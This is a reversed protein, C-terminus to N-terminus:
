RSKISSVNKKILSTVQRLIGKCDRASNVMPNEMRITDTM